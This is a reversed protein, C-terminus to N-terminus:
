LFAVAQKVKRFAVGLWLALGALALACAARIHPPAYTFRIDAAGAPLSISQFLGAQSVPVERGNVSAEWGPFYMERRLLTTPVPCVSHMEQRSPVALACAPDAAQAYPAPNPLEYIAASSDQFVLSPGPGPTAASILTFVPLEAGTGSPALWIAVAKGSFHDLRFAMGQGPPVFLPKAFMFTLPANDMAGSTDATATTCIKAACLTAFIAGRSSGMYTGIYVSIGAVERFPPNFPLVGSIDPGGPLLAHAQNRTAADLPQFSPSGGLDDGPNTVLFRVGLAEYEPLNALLADRQGPANGRYINLDSNSFLHATIYRALLRPSPMAAYNLSAIDYRVPFAADFIGLSMMRSNGIHNQLWTIPATDTHGSRLGAFQPFLFGGLPGAILLGAALRHHRKHRLERCLVALTFAAFCAGALAVGMEKPAGAYVALIFHRVPLIAAALLIAMVALIAALRPTGLAPRRLYDDFGFAALAYLAFNVVPGSFRASDCTAIGPILNLAWTAPPFGLYRAEWIAVWAFLVLRLSQPRGGRASGALALALVPLGVWGPMRVFSGDNNFMADLPPRPVVDFVGYLYPMLQLPVLVPMLHTQAFANGAHGGVFALPLYELFPVLLPACLALGVLLGLAIKVAFSGLATVPLCAARWLTWLGALLGDLYTVEPFGAYVSYALAIVILSWRMPRRTQAAAAAHEIGLLLLPLFPLPAMSAHPSLFFIPSLAYLAGGLLAALRALGLEIFLAYAFWGCMAQLLVRMILWGANFHLLLVFPLFFAYTQMEAALPMGVGSYPNWWPIIGHLWDSAALHGVPQVIYAVTPDLWGMPGPVFGPRMRQGLGIFPLTPDTNFLGSLAIANALIPLATLLLLAAQHRRFSAASDKMMSM